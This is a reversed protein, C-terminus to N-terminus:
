DMWDVKTSEDNKPELSYLIRGHLKEVDLELGNMSDSVMAQYDKSLSSWMLFALYAQPVTYGFLSLYDFLRRLEILHDKISKGEEM